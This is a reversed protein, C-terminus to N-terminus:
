ASILYSWASWVGAALCLVGAAGYFRAQWVNAARDVGTATLEPHDPDYYVTVQDGPAYGTLALDWYEVRDGGQTDYAVWPHPYESGREKAAVRTVVGDAAVRRHWSRARSSSQGAVYLLVVALVVFSGLGGLGYFVERDGGALAYVSGVGTILGFVGFVVGFAAIEGLVQSPRGTTARGTRGYRVPLREGAKAMVKVPERFEVERGDAAPYSVLLRPGTRDDRETGVVTGVARQGFLCVVLVPARRFLVLIAIILALGGVVIGGVAPVTVDTM